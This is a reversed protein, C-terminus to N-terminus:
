TNDFDIASRLDFGEVIVRCKREGNGKATLVPITGLAKAGRPWLYIFIDIYVYMFITIQIPLLTESYM